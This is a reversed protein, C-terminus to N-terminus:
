CAPTDPFFTRVNDKTIVEHQVFLNEEITEGNLLKVVAPILISGYSEPFYATDALWYPNCAIEKWSTPDAGQGALRLESERGATRAAAFAGLSM